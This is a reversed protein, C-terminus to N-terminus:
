VFFYLLSSQLSFHTINKRKICLKYINFNNTFYGYNFLFRNKSNFFLNKRINYTAFHSMIGLYSNINARMKDIKRDDIIKLKIYKNKKSDFITIKKFFNYKRMKKIELFFSKKVRNAVYTRKPKIMAGLFMVGNNYKQLYIKNPHLTLELNQRLFSNIRPIMRKLLDKDESILVFDDVYRGYYKMEMVNKIFCDFDHMYVNSFLQSTLNGIPLGCNKPTYFLSKSKPLGHWDSRHGKITCNTTPDDFIVKYLLKKFFKKEKPNYNENINEEVSTCNELNTYGTKLMELIKKWLIFKNMSMFYGQVDLKLIYCEKTYNQSCEKIFKEIRHIGYLTGKNKRCSYSDCIFQSDFIPNLYNFLLHHV